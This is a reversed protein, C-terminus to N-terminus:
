SCKRTASRILGIASRTGPVTVFQVNPDDFRPAVTDIAVTEGVKARAGEPAVVQIEPYRDQWTKSDLRHKHWSAM